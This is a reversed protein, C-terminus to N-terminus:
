HRRSADIIKNIKAENKYYWDYGNKAILDDVNAATIPETNDQTVAAANPASARQKSALAEREEKRGAEHANSVDAASRRAKALVFLSELDSALAQALLPNQAKKETLIAVAEDDYAKLEPNNLYFTNAAQTTKLNNIENRLEATEDVYGDDDTSTYVEGMQRELETRKLGSESVKQDANRLMAAVKAPDTLDVGKKKAWALDENEPEDLQDAQIEEQVNEAADEIPQDLQPETGSELVEQSETITDDM